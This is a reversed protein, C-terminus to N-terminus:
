GGMGGPVAVTTRESGWCPAQKDGVGVRGAPEKGVECVGGGGVPSLRTWAATSSGVRGGGPGSQGTDGGELLGSGVVVLSAPEGVGGRSVAWPRVPSLLSRLFSTIWGCRGT